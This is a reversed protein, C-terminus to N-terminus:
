KEQAMRCVMDMLDECTVPIVWPTEDFIRRIERDMPDTGQPLVLITHRCLMPEDWVAQSQLCRVLPELEARKRPIALRCCEVCRPCRTWWLCLKRVCQACGYLALLFLGIWALVEWFRM